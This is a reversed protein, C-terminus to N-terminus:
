TLPSGISCRVRPKRRAQSLSAASDTDGQQRAAVKRTRNQLTLEVGQLRAVAVQPADSSLLAMGPAAYVRASSEPPHIGSKGATAPFDPFGHFDMPKWPFTKLNHFFEQLKVINGVEWGRSPYRADMWGLNQTLM